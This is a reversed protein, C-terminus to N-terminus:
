YGFRTFKKGNEVDSILTEKWHSVVQLSSLRKLSGFPVIQVGLPLCVIGIAAVTGLGNSESEERLKKLGDLSEPWPASYTMAEAIALPEASIVRFYKSASGGHDIRPVVKLHLVHTRSRTIDRPLALAHICAGMLTPNHFKIWKELRTDLEKLTM